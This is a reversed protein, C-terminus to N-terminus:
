TTLSSSLVSPLIRHAYQSNLYINRRAYDLYPPTAWLLPLPLCTSPPIILFPRSSSFSHALIVQSLVRLITCARAIAQLMVRLLRVAIHVNDEGEHQHHHQHRDRQADDHLALCSPCVIKPRQDGLVATLAALIAYVGCDYDNRQQPFADDVKFSWPPALPSSEKGHPFHPDLFNSLIDYAPHRLPAATAAPTSAAPPLM